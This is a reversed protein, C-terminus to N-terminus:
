GRIIVRSAYMLQPATTYADSATVDTQVGDITPYGSTVNEVYKDTDDSAPAADMIAHTIGAISMVDSWPDGAYAFGSVRSPGLSDVYDVVAQSVPATLPGAAYISNTVSPSPSLVATLTLIDNAPATNISEVRCIHCQVNAGSTSNVVLIRPRTTTTSANVAAILAAPASGNIEISSTTPSSLVTMATGGDEWDWAYDDSAPTVRAQIIHGAPSTMLPVMLTAEEVAVPRVSDVYTQMLALDAVSVGSGRATGTGDVTVVVDVTGTGSRRPYVYARVNDLITDGETTEANETWDRYDPATGGKPPNQLRYEIRDLLPGDDEEDLGGSLAATVDATSDLGAPPSIWSVVADVELNGAAGGNTANVSCTAVGAAITYPGGTTEVITTGDEATAQTGDAIVTGNTGTAQVMGGTANIAVRRGYGGQGNPLGLVQAWRDLGDSSTDDTPVADQDADEVGKEFGWVAMAVARALKGLFGETGLNRTAFRTRFYGVIETVLASRTKITVPM